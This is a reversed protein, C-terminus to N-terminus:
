FYSGIVGALLVVVVLGIILAIRRGRRGPRGWFRGRRGAPPRGGPAPRYGPPPQGPGRGPATLPPPQSPWASRSAAPVTPSESGGPPQFSPRPRPEEERYWGQPWDNM